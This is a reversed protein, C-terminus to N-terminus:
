FAFTFGASLNEINDGAVDVEQYLLRLALNDSLNWAIGAGLSTDADEEENKSRFLTASTINSTTLDWYYVGIRAFFEVEETVPIIALLSINTGDVSFDTSGASGARVTEEGLELWSIELALNDSVRYGGSLELSSVDEAVEAYDTSGTAAAFYFHAPSNHSFSLLVSLATFRLMPTTM